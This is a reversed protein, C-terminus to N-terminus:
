HARRKRLHGRPPFVRGDASVVGLLSIHERSGVTEMQVRKMGKPALVRVKSEMDGQIGTEDLNIVRWADERGRIGAKEYAIKLNEFYTSVAEQNFGVRRCKELEEPLRVALPKGHLKAMRENFSQFWPESFTEVYYTRKVGAGSSCGRKLAQTMKRRAGIRAAYMSVEEILAAKTIPMCYAARAQVYLYIKAEEEEDLTPPRGATKSQVRVLTEVLDAVATADLQEDMEQSLQTVMTACDRIVNEYTKKYNRLTREETECEAYKKRRLVIGVLDQTLIDSRDM